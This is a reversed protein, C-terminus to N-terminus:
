LKPADIKEESLPHPPEDASPSYDLWGEDFPPWAYPLVVGKLRMLDFLEISLRRMVILSYAADLVSFMREDTRRAGIATQPHKSPINFVANFRSLRQGLDRPLARTRELSRVLRGFPETTGRHEPPSPSLQQVCGELHACVNAIFTRTLSKFDRRGAYGHIYLFPRYVGDPSLTLYTPGKKEWYRPIIELVLAGSDLRSNSLVDSVHRALRLEDPSLEEAVIADVCFQDEQRRARTADVPSAM